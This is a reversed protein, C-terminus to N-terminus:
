HFILKYTESLFKMPNDGDLFILLLEAILCVLFYIEDISMLIRFSFLKNRWNSLAMPYAVAIYYSWWWGANLSYYIYLSLM